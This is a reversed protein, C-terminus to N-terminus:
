RHFGDSRIHAYGSRGSDARADADLCFLKELFHAPHDALFLPDFGPQFRGALQCGTEPGGSVCGELQGM